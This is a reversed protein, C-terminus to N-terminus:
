DYKETATKGSWKSSRSEDALKKATEFIEKKEEDSKNASRFVELDKIKETNRTDTPEGTYEVVIAKETETIRLQSAQVPYSLWAMLLLAFLPTKMIKGKDVAVTSPYNM